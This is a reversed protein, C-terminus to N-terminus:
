SELRISVARGHAPLDEAASLAEVVPALDALAKRDYEVWNVPVFFDDTRLGGTFRATGGTPLTHNPGACYDGLSVPTTSGVFIAGAARVREAVSAADETQVELHEAAFADAVDVAHHLDDVLVATGQGALATRVREIHGTAGVEDALSAEVRNVLDVDPTILVCAALPDHEAQAVLDAAIWRPDATGDAIIAVETTGAKGDIGCWGAAQVQLKAEAVYANGPGVIKDCAPVTATGLAMAAIAQAGGIPFVRNVGLMSAAGLITPNVRGETDPPTCLIIEDVGAVRAPIVTMLVSSPLPSLGAPIYVGVRRLPRHRVGLVATGRRQQWDAPRSQEHFWRVQEAARELAAVLATDLAELARHGEAAEIERHGGPWGDLRLTLRAVADDGDTRVDDLITAVTDRVSRQRAESARPLRDRPDSRDGRLDVVSLYPGDGAAVTPASPVGDPNVARPNVARPTGARPPDARPPDAQDSSDTPTM